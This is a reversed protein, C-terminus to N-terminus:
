RLSSSEDDSSGLEAASAGFNKDTWEDEDMQSLSEEHDSANLGSLNAFEVREPTRVRDLLDVGAIGSLPKKEPSKGPQRQSPKRIVKTARVEGQMGYHHICFFKHDYIGDRDFAYSGLRLQTNCYQCKFCGHHFFRGEASLREM